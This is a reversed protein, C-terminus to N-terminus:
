SRVGARLPTDCVECIQLLIEGVKFLTRPVSTSRRVPKDRVLEECAPCVNACIEGDIWPTYM